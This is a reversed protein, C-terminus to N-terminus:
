AVAVMRIVTGADSAHMPEPSGAMSEGIITGGLPLIGARFTYM